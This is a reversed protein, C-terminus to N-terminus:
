GRGPGGYLPCACCFSRPRGFWGDKPARPAADVPSSILPLFMPFPQTQPVRPM